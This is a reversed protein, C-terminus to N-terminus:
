HSDSILSMPAPGGDVHCRGCKDRLLPFIENNYTFPSTKEKHEDDDMFMALRFSLAYSRELM